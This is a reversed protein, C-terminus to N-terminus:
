VSSVDARGTSVVGHDADAVSEPFGEDPYRAALSARLADRVCVRAAHGVDTASGTFTAPEGTPDCAVIAADSTTGTFGTTALLTATRAEVTGALLNALAGPALARTTGLIVNVTGPTPPDDGARARPPRERTDADMPLSAPNSIGATAVAEVPGYRARRAHRQDVGTLLAPGDDDFGADARRDAVFADLDTRSFGDPVTVNYAAPADVVGGDFGTSLWRTGPRGLRCVGAARTAEFM